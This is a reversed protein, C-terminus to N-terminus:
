HYEGTEDTEEKKCVERETLEKGIIDALRMPVDKVTNVVYYM